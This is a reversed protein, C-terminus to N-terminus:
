KKLIRETQVRVSDTFVYVQPDLFRSPTPIPVVEFLNNQGGAAHLPLLYTTPQTPPPIAAPWLVKIQQPPQRLAQLEDKYIKIIKATAEGRVRGDGELPSPKLDPQVEATVVIAAFYLQPASVVVPDAVTYAQYALWGTWCVALVVFILFLIRKQTM